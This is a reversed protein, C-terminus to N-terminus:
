SRATAVWSVPINSWTGVVADASFVFLTFSSPGANIARSVWRATTGSGSDINTVVAPAIPFSAGYPVSMTFSAVATLSVLTQGTVQNRPWLGSDGNTAGLILWASDQRFVAVTDGVKPTYSGVVGVGSSFNGGNMSLTLPVLSSVTATRLGNSIGAAKQTQHALRTTM